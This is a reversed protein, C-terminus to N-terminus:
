TGRGQLSAAGAGRARRARRLRSWAVLLAGLVLTCGDMAGGGSKPDTISVQATSTVTSDASSVATITVTAPTPMTAPPTYVGSTSITGVTTNGGSVGDVQWTVGTNSANAVDATFPKSGGGAPMSVTAPCIGLQVPSACSGTPAAPPLVTAATPTLIVDATDTAGSSDTVTLRLTSVGCSPVTVTASPSSGGQIAVEQGSVQSWAYSTITSGGAAVSANGQLTITQGPAYSGPAAISAIPRLAATLAGPANAMGAGCTQGDRTCICEFDQVDDPGTPAHCAPPQTSEGAASQPFPVSGEKLREILQCSNLHPNVSAMLAGIGSVLPAAFSTGLDPNDVQDTFASSAPPDTYPLPTTTGANTASLIPYACPTAATVVATDCNGAPAAVAVEPGLSSYSVKTGTERLGAVAAVGACSAPADVPGGGNGASAVVLVGRAALQSIVDEYTATCPGAGGLSMNIIKAPTPNVPAGSVPIGAAWLMASVIDSDSGGCKGLARVPLIEAQWTMGAMGLANDTIAGLLAATRTGHWSSPAVQANQCEPESLDSESVWDGPDSGEAESVSSGLCTGGNSVFPDSIFCYGPLLRGGAAVDLLDPHDYRVGTDIDAIVLSASGTTTSWATQADVAALTSAPDPPLLYWQGGAYLPDDPVAHVYRRQDLEAYQVDPDARLRALTQALPEAAQVQIVHMLATIPRESQLTVGIRGALATIRAQGTRIQARAAAAGTSTARLKVIISGTPQVGQPHTRVPNDEPAGTACVSVAALMVPVLWAFSRM